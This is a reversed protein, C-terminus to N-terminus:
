PRNIRRRLAILGVFGIGLLSTTMPEPLDPTPPVALSIDSNLAFNLIDHNEFGSGTASTFGVFASNTGLLAAINIPYANIITQVPAAGDRIQVTLAAGDYGVTVSWIDGNSMCGFAHSFGCTAVGYANAAALNSLVGNVDIAVHNDSIDAGGGSNGAGNNYTDFEIAVSRPVGLIGIGGGAAGLGTSGAALVFTIGDAPDIGGTQTFQFQFTSSFTANSGLTVPTLSYGAGSSFGAANSVRLASGVVHTDGVCALATGCVTPSFSPFNFIVSAESSPASVLALIFTSGVLVRRISTLM